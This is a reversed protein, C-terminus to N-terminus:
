AQLNKAPRSDLRNAPALLSPSDGTSNVPLSRTWRVSAGLLPIALTIAIAHSVLILQKQLPNM